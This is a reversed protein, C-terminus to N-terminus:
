CVNGLRERYIALENSSRMTPVSDSQSQGPKLERYAGERLIILLWINDDLPKM